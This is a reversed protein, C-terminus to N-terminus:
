ATALPLIPRRRGGGTIRWVAYILALNALNFAFGIAFAVRYTGMIDFLAGAAQGGLAMGVAGFLLIAGVRWGMTHAPYISRLLVAYLPVLGGFGLGFLTAGVYLPALGPLPFFFFLGAAQLGSAIFMARYSGIRDALAGMGLRGAFSVLMIWSLLMAGQRGSYGIDQTHAAVHLLPMAMAICCCSIALCLIIQPLNEALSGFRAGGARSALRAKGLDDWGPPKGRLLLLLPPMTVLAFLGYLMLAHRWGITDTLETFIQPWIAGALGQGSAVIAVALGMRRDFWRTATAMLPAFLTANGLLGIMVGFVLCFQWAETVQSAAIAGAPIMMAGILVVPVAGVKDALRGMLIGGVGTGVMEAAYAASPIWRPWGMDDAITKLNSWLMYEVGMGLSVLLTSVIAIRWAEPGDPRPAPRASM